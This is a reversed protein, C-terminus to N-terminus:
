ALEALLAAWAEREREPAFRPALAACRAELDALFAPEHEARLLLARLATVGSVPFYGPYDAGLMGVNGPVRTALVPTGAVLAESIANAGGESRSSLVLVHSRAVLRLARWRPLDGLWRYRPNRRQEAEARVAYEDELAAGAHLVRIRSDAPLDRVAEATVFPDKVARMHGVVAATFQRRFKPPRHALPEVSQWILRVKDRMAPPVEEAAQAQLVVLRQALGLSQRAEPDAHIDHYLDTGTLALVLPGDSYRQRYALMQPRSRRAHLAIMVDCAEGAYDTSVDVRHGLERLMRSWRDATIRNGKRSYRPAPTIMRITM